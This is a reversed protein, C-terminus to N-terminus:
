NLLPSRFRGTIRLVQLLKPQSTDKVIDALYAYWRLNEVFGSTKGVLFHLDDFKMRYIAILHDFASYRHKTLVVEYPASNPQVEGYWEAGWSGELCLSNTFGRRHYIDALNPSLVVDDYTARIFVTFLQLRRTEVLLGQLTAAMEPMTSLDFGARGFVGGPHCFDNQVDIVLLATRNPDLHATLDLGDPQHRMRM